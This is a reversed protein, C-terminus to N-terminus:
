RKSLQKEIMEFAVKDANVGDNLRTATTKLMKGGDLARSKRKHQLDWM